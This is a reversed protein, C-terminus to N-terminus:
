TLGPHTYPRGKELLIGISSIVTSILNCSKVEEEVSEKAIPLISKITDKAKCINVRAPRSHFSDRKDFSLRSSGMPKASLCSSYHSMIRGDVQTFRM